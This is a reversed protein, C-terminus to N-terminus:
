GKNSWLGAQLPSINQHQRTNKCLLKFNESEPEIALIQTHPYRNAFFLSSIGIHAGADVIFHPTGLEVEYEKSFLIQHLVAQDNSGPRLYISDHKWPAIVEGIGNNFYLKSFATIAPFFGYHDPYWSMYRWYDPRIEKKITEKFM